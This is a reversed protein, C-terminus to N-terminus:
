KELLKFTENIADNDIGEDFKRAFFINKNNVLKIVEDKHIINPSSNGCFEIHRLNGLSSFVFNGSNLIMQKYVEDACVTYKFYNKYLFFNDVLYKTADYTLSCWESGMKFQLPCRKLRNVRIIKQFFIGVRRFLGNLKNHRLEKTFFHYYKLRNMARLDDGIEIFEEKKGEFYSNFQSVTKMPMDDGSILHIRKYVTESDIVRKFLSYECSVVSYDGWRVDQNDIFIVRGKTKFSLCPLEGVSKSDIHIYFDNLQDDLLMIIKLLQSFHHHAMICFANNKIM